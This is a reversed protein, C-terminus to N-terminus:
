SDLEARTRAWRYDQKGAPSRRVEDVVIISKPIKYAAIIGELAARVAATDPAHEGVRASILGVVREGWRQDPLGVVVADQVGPLARLAEEVEEPYIKEGGSNICTSGRGFVTILGDEDLRAEDGSVVWVRGDITRFTEATKEPDGFYGIPTYGSRALAGLEGVRALRDGIVVTQAPGAPLRLMGEGGDKAMGSVGTESSGMGDTVVLGPVLRVFAEKVHRSFVAGGSGVSRLADLRWRGPHAALMDALPIAMADGVFQLINVGKSEVVDWVRAADFKPSADLVVTLGGLLASWVTWLAAAHMLPAVPFMRLQPGERARIAIDEPASIPGSPHFYGGGGACAFVFAEHPWMVGKPKGTTGGTYTLLIDRGDRPARIEAPAERAMTRLDHFGGSKAGVAFVARISPARPRVAAMTPTFADDHIIAAAEANSFVHALEDAGYRYNVNFPVLRAKACAIFAELHETHNTLYLGVRDGPALGHANLAAAIAATRADLEAYSLVDDGCILAVRDPVAAAVIEFLDALHFGAAM